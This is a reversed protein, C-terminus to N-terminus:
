SIILAENSVFYELKFIVIKSLEPLNIITSKGSGTSGVIAMTKGAPVEFSVDRLIPSGEVYEFNVHSFVINGKIEDLYVKGADETVAADDTLAFIREAAVLGMQMSNFKDALM